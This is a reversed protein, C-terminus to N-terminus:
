IGKEKMSQWKKVIKELASDVKKQMKDPNDVVTINTATGRWVLEKTEADWADVVLTGAFPALFRNPHEASRSMAFDFAVAQLRSWPGSRYAWLYGTATKGAGPDLVPVPTEDAHVIPETLLVAILRHMLPDLLVEL